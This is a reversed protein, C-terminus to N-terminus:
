SKRALKKKTNESVALLKKRDMLRFTYNETSKYEGGLYRLQDARSSFDAQFSFGGERIQMEMETVFAEDVEM